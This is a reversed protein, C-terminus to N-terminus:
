GEIFAALKGSVLAAIHGGGLAAGPVAGDAGAIFHDADGHLLGATGAALVLVEDGPKYYVVAVDPSAGDADGHGRIARQKDGIVARIGDPPAAVRAAVRLFFGALEVRGAMGCLARGVLINRIPSSLKRATRINAANWNPSLLPKFLM